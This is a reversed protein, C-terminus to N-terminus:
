PDSTQSRQNTTESSRGTASSTPTSDRPPSPNHQRRVKEKARSLRMKCASPSLEFMQCLDDISYNEAYKLILLARDEESLDALLTTADLAHDAGATQATAVDAMASPEVATERRQRRGRSRRMTLCTRVTIAHLWTTFKSRGEFRDRKAFLRLFVEQAADEADEANGMLRYCLRWVTDRHRRVLTTFALGDSDEAAAQALLQEDTPELATHLRAGVRLHGSLTDEFDLQPKSRPCVLTEDGTQM